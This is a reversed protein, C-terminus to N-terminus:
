RGGGPMLAGILERASLASVGLRNALAVAPPPGLSLPVLIDERAFADRAPCDLAVRGAALVVVRDAYEAAAWMAHTILIVTMGDANLGKIFDMMRGAESADLGTTPEDFIVAAPRYALMSAVALQQREGKTLSFPDDGDRGALGVATLAAVVRDRESDGGISLNRVGFAVEDYVTESFIQHDPNQFVYGVIRSLEGIRYARVPRGAVLADGSRPKLLGTAHKALTTKGSGNQGLLAVCEGARISLSVGHLVDPGGPYGSTLERFEIIKEANAGGKFAPGRVGSEPSGTDTASGSERSAPRAKICLAIDEISPSRPTIGLSRAVQAPAWVPVGLKECLEPDMLLEAPPGQWVLRGADLALLIDAAGLAQPEHEVLIITMGREKLRAIAALVQIKGLPDLDTLPEDLVLLDPALAVAAAIALRQKEGGSLEAPVRDAFGALGVLALTEAVRARQEGAPLGQNELPFAVELEATSSVLHSEFDQFVVGVERAMDRPPRVPRGNVRVEGTSTGRLLHPITGNAAMALTSKGAGNRGTVVALLGASLSFDIGALAPAAPPHPVVPSPGADPDGGPGRHGPYTFTFGRFELRVASSM